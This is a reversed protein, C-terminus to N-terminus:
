PRDKFEIGGCIRQIENRTKWYFDYMPIKATSDSLFLNSEGIIGSSSQKADMDKCVAILRNDKSIIVWNGYSEGISERIYNRSVSFNQAKNQIENNFQFLTNAELYGREPDYTKISFNHTVFYVLLEEFIKKTSENCRTDIYQQKYTTLKWFPTCGVTLGFIAIIVVTRKM